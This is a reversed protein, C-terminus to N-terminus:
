PVQVLLVLQFNKFTFLVCANGNFSLIYGEDSIDQLKKMGIMAFCWSEMLRGHLIGVSYGGNKNKSTM